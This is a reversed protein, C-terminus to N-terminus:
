TPVTYTISVIHGGVAASYALIEAGNLGRRRSLAFRVRSLDIMDSSSLVRYRLLLGVQSGLDVLNNTARNKYDRIIVSTPAAGINSFRYTAKPTEAVTTEAVAVGTDVVAVKSPLTGASDSRAPAATSTSAATSSSASLM